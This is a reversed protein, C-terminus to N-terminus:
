RLAGGAAGQRLLGRRAATGAVGWGQQPRSVLLCCVGVGVWGWLATASATTGMSTTSLHPAKSFSNHHVCGLLSLLGRMLWELARKVGTVRASNTAWTSAPQGWASTARTTPPARAPPPRPRADRHHARPGHAAVKPRHECPGPCVHRQHRAPRVQLRDSSQPERDTPLGPLEPYPRPGRIRRLIHSRHVQHQEGDLRVLVALGNREAAWQHARIRRHERELVTHQAPFLKLRPQDHAVDQRAGDVDLRPDLGWAHHPLLAAHAPHHQALGAAGRAPSPLGGGSEQPTRAHWRLEGIVHHAREPGLPEEHRRQGPHRCRAAQAHGLDHRLGLRPLQDHPHHPLDLRHPPFRPTASASSTTSCVSAYM